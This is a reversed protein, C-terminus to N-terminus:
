TAARTEQMMLGGTAKIVKFTELADEFHVAAKELYASTEEIYGDTSASWVRNISREGAAFRNMVEAYAKLGYSHAISERADVFKVLHNMFSEDIKHRLDYVNTEAKEENLRKAEVTLSELSEEIARVNTSIVEVDTAEAKRARQAVIVGVIGISLWVLFASTNVGEVQKVVEYSGGLFGVTILLYGFYRLSM